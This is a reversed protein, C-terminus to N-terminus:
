VDPSSDGLIGQLIPEVGKDLATATSRHGNWIGHAIVDVGARVAFEQAAMSNAHLFVPLGGAHAAAIVAPMMEITPVPLRVADRGFGSERYSKVCIAGDRSMQQVVAEPTHQAKDIWAPLSAAQDTNFLFYPSAAFGRLAYGNVM